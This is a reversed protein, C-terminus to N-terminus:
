YSDEPPAWPNIENTFQYPVVVGLSIEGFFAPKGTPISYAGGATLSVNLIDSKWGFVGALGHTNDTYNNHIFLAMLHSVQEMRLGARSLLLQDTYLVALEPSARFPQSELGNQKGRMKKSLHLVVHLPQEEPLYEKQGFEPNGIVVPDLEFHRFSYSVSIGLNYVPSDWLLGIRPNFISYRFLSMGPPEYIDISKDLWSEVIYVFWQKTYVRYNLNISSTFEGDDITVPKAFTYGAGTHNTNLEGTLGHYFYWATAAKHKDSWTDHTITFSHNLGDAPGAFFQLNSWTSTSRDFGAFSPNLLLKNSYPLLGHETQASCIYGSALIAV